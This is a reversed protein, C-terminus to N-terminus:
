LWQYTYFVVRAVANLKAWLRSGVSKEWPCPEGKLRQVAAKGDRVWVIKFKAQRNVTRLLLGDGCRLNHQIGTILAGSLSLSRAIADQAFLEGHADIGAIRVEVEAPIRPERRREMKVIIFSVPLRKLSM